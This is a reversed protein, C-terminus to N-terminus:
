IYSCYMRSMKLALNDKRLQPLFFRYLCIFLIKICSMKHKKALVKKLYLFSFFKFFVIMNHSLISSLRRIYTLPFCEAWKLIWITRESNKDFFFRYSCIFIIKTCAMKNKEAFVMKMYLFNFFKFVVIMNNSLIYSLIRKYTLPICDTWKLLWITM